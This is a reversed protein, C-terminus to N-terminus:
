LVCKHQQILSYYNQEINASINGKPISSKIEEFSLNPAYTKLKKYPASEQDIAGILKIESKEVAYHLQELAFLIFYVFDDENQYHHSNYLKLSKNEIVILQFDSKQVNIILLPSVRSKYQLTFSEILVSSFHHFSIQELQKQFFSHIKKPLGFVNKAKINNLEDCYYINSNTDLEFNVGMYQSMKDKEFIPNPIITAYHHNIALSKTCSYKKLLSSAEFIQKLEPLTTEFDGSDAFPYLVFALCNNKEKEILTYAFYATGLEMSLHLLSEDISASLQDDFFQVAPKIALQAM